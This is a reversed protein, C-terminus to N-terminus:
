TFLLTQVSKYQNNEDAEFPIKFTFLRSVILIYSISTHIVFVDVKSRLSCLEASELVSSLLIPNYGDSPYPGPM